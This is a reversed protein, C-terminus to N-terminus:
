ILIMSDRGYKQRMTRESIGHTQSAFIEYKGELVDHTQFLVWRMFEQIDALGGLVLM